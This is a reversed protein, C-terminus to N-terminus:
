FMIVALVLFAGLFCNYLASVLNLNCIRNLVILATQRFAIHYVTEDLQLEIHTVMNTYVTVIVVCSM